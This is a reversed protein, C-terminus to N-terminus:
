QSANGAAGAPRLPTPQSRAPTSVTGNRVACEARYYDSSRRELEAFSLSHSDCFHQLDALMDVVFEDAGRGSAYHQQIHEMLQVTAALAIATTPRM